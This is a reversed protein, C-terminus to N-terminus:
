LSNKLDNSQLCMTIYIVTMSLMAIGSSTLQGAMSAVFLTLMPIFVVFARRGSYKLTERVMCLILGWFCIMGVIGWTVWIEQFGNHCALINPGYIEAIKLDYHQLGVGFFFHQFSSFIHSHYFHMLFSRGNTIDDTNNRLMFNELLFPAFQILIFIVLCVLLTFKLCAALKQKPTKQSLIMYMLLQCVLVVVFTRSLTTFGLIICVTLLFYDFINNGKRSILVFLSAIAMNCILGLNNPNFNLGYQTGEKTTSMGFRAQEVENGDLLDLISGLGSYLHVYIIVIGIGIVSIAMVRSILKYNITDWKISGIFVLFLLEAFNRFYESISMNGIFAHLLEWLLMLVVPIIISSLYIKKRFRLLGVILYVLLAYKYQFGVGLALFSMAMAVIQSETAFFAPLVAVLLIFMPPISVDLATRAALLVLLVAIIFYVVLDSKFLRVKM